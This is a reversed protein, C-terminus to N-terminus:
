FEEELHKAEIKAVAKKAAKEGKVSFAFSGEEWDGAFVGKKGELKKVIKAPRDKANEWNGTLADVLAYLTCGNEDAIADVAEDIKEYADDSDPNVSLDTALVLLSEMQDEDLEITSSMTGMYHPYYEFYTITKM